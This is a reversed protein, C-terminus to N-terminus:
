KEKTQGLCVDFQKFLEDIVEDPNVIRKDMNKIYYKFFDKQERNMNSMDNNDFAQRVLKIFDSNFTYVVDGNLTYIKKLVINTTSVGSFQSIKRKM